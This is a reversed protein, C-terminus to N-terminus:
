LTKHALTKLKLDRSFRGNMIHNFVNLGNRNVSSIDLSHTHSHPQAKCISYKARWLSQDVSRRISDTLWHFLRGIPQREYDYSNVLFTDSLSQHSTLSLSPTESLYQALIMFLLIIEDDLNASPLYQIYYQNIGRAIGRAVLCLNMLKDITKTQRSPLCSFYWFSERRNAMAAYDDGCLCICIIDRVVFASRNLFLTHPLNKRRVCIVRVMAVLVLVSKLWASFSSSSPLFVNKIM